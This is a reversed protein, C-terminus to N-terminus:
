RPPTLRVHVRRISHNYTDAVIIAGTKDVLLTSPHSFLAGVGSADHSDAFGELGPTGAVTSVEGEASITRVCHNVTDAVVIMGAGDIAIDGPFNFRVASGAGDAHGAEGGLGAITTVLGKMTIRRVTHNGADTVILTNNTDIAIGRPFLFRAYGGIGDCFAREGALGALTRVESTRGVVRICDSAIM